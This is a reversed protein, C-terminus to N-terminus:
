YDDERNQLKASKPPKDNDSCNPARNRIGQASNVEAEEAM